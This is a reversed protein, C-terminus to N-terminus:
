NSPKAGGAAQKLLEFAFFLLVVAIPLCVIYTGLVNTRRETLHAIPPQHSLASNDDEITTLALAM